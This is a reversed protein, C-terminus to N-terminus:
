ILYTSKFTRILDTISLDYCVSVLYFLKVFRGFKSENYCKLKKRRFLMKVALIITFPNVNLLEKNLCITKTLDFFTSGLDKTNNNIPIHNLLLDIIKFYSNPKITFDCMSCLEWELKFVYANNTKINAMEITYIDDYYASAIALCTHLLPISYIQHSINDAIEYPDYRPHRESSKNKRKWGTYIKRKGIFNVFFDALQVALITTDYSLSNLFSVDFLEEVFEQRSIVEPLDPIDRRYSM